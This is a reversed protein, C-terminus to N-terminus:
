DVDWWVRTQTNDAGQRAVAADYNAKNLNQETLPYLHRVPVFGLSNPGAQIAPVGTRRWHSWGEYGSNFLAVWKQYWIKNLKEQQTGTYSVADQTYYSPPAIVDAATPFTYNDPIRSAYYEFHSAIGENYYGAADGSIWGKEASEALIFQLESYTMLLSQAATPSSLEEDWSVSAWLLGPPSQNAQGGNYLDENAIGNPVGLYEPNTSGSTAPTPQAFVFLRPDNMAKFREVMSESARTSSAYNTARYRPFENGLEDLYQLAAQDDNSEFIPHEGPNNVIRAIDSSTDKRGSIRLLCRLRLSNAFKRWKSVDGFYLIDGTVSGNEPRLLQNASELDALIGTYIDEQRDYEPFNVNSKAQTAQSYPIDGYVDTLNQFMFSKYVLAIGQYNEHGQAVALEYLTNVNRMHGYFGWLFYESADAPTWDFASVFQNALYDAVVNGRRWSGTYYDDMSARVIEPLLLGPNSLQDPQNPNTNIEEFDETCGIAMLNLIVVLLISKNFIKKMM